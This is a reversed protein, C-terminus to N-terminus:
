PAHALHSGMAEDAFLTRRIVAVRRMVVARRARDLRCAYGQAHHRLTASSLLLTLASPLGQQRSILLLMIQDSWAMGQSRTLEVFTAIPRTRLYRTRHRRWSHWGWVGAMVLILGVSVLWLSMLRGHWHDMMPQVVDRLRENNGLAALTIM